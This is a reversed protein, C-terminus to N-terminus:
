DAKTFHPVVTDYLIGCMGCVTVEKPGGECGVGEEPHSDTGCKTEEDDSRLLRIRGNEGWFFGWSNQILWFKAKLGEDKGFGVLTVAHDIVADNGCGDFIGSIYSGWPEAFVSVAVPGREVVARMLPEYKNEPLREWGILGFASLGGAAHSLTHVGPALIDEFTESSTGHLSVDKSCANTVGLYPKTTSDDLGHKMAYDMALEVTNGDCGGTGGCHHINPVCDVFDQVSFTRSKKQHIEYNTELMLSAAYAWCSGCFGQDRFGSSANLHVWSVSDPLIAASTQMLQMPSSGGHSSVEAGHGSRRAVGKWGRIYAFEDDTWDAFHNVGATWLRVPRANLADAEMVRKEYLSRRHEYELSGEAYNRNHQQIFSAFSPAALRNSSPNQSAVKQLLSSTDETDECTPTTSLADFVEARNGALGAMAFVM